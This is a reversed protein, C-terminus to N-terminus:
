NKAIVEECNIRAHLPIASAVRRRADERCTRIKAGQRGGPVDGPKIEAHIEALHHQDAYKV